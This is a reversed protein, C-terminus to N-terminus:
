AGKGRSSVASISKKVVRALARLMSRASEVDVEVFSPGSAFFVNGERSELVELAKDIERARKLLREVISRRPDEM